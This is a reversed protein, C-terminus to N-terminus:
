GPERAAQDLLTDLGLLVMSKMFKFRFGRWKAKTGSFYPIPAEGRLGLLRSSWVAFNKREVKGSWEAFNKEEM